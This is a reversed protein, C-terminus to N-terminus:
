SLQRSVSDIASQRAALYEAAGGNRYHHYVSRQISQPVMRWHEGCMLLSRSIVRTCGPAACEHTSKTRDYSM